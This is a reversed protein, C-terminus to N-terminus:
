QCLKFDNFSLIEHISTLRIIMIIIIMIMGMDNDYNDYDDYYDGDDFYDGDIANDSIM